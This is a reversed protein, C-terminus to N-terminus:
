LDKILVAYEHKSKLKKAFGKRTWASVSTCGMARGFDEVVGFTENWLEFDRGSKTAALTVHLMKKRPYNIIEALCVSALDQAEIGAFLIMQKKLLKDLVDESLQEGHSHKLAKDVLPKVEHWIRPVDSAFVPVLLM